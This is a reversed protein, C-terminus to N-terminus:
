KFTVKYGHRIQGRNEMYLAAQTKKVVVKEVWKTLPKGSWNTQNM